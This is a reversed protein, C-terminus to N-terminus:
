DCFNIELCILLLLAYFSITYCSGKVLVKGATREINEENGEELQKHRAKILCFPYLKVCNEHFLVKDVKFFTAFSSHFPFLSKPIIIHQLMWLTICHHFLDM